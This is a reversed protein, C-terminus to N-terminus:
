PVEGMKEKVRREIEEYVASYFPESAPEGDVFIEGTERNLGVSYHKLGLAQLRAHLRNMLINDIIPENKKIKDMLKKLQPNIDM